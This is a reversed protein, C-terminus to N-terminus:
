ASSVYLSECTDLHVMFDFLFMCLNCGLITTALFGLFDMNWINRLLPIASSIRRAATRSPKQKKYCGRYGKVESSATAKETGRHSGRQIAQNLFVGHMAYNYTDYVM